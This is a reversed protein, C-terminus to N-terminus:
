KINTIENYFENKLKYYKRASLGPIKLTIYEKLLTPNNILSTLFLIDFKVAPDNKSTLSADIKYGDKTIRWLVKESLVYTPKGLTRIVAPLHKDFDKPESFIVLDIDNEGPIGLALSGEWFVELGTNQEIEKILSKAFKATIPDWPKISAVADSPIKSLYKEQEETLM